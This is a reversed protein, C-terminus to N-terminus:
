AAKCHFWDSSCDFRPQAVPQQMLSFRFSIYRRGWDGCKGNRCVVVVIVVVLLLFLIM